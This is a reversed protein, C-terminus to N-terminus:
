KTEKKSLYGIGINTLEVTNFDTYQLMEMQSLKSIIRNLEDRGIKLMHMATEADMDRELLLKLLKYEKEYISAEQEIERPDVDIYGSLREVYNQIIRDLNLRDLVNGAKDYLTCYKSGPEHKWHSVNNWTYGILNEPRGHNFKGTRTAEAISKKRERRQFAYHQELQLQGLDVDCDSVMRTIEKGAIEKLESVFYLGAESNMDNYVVRILAEIAKGVLAPNISDIDSSISVAFGQDASDNKNIEVLKLFDYKGQLTKITSGISEDAFKSSTRRSAVNYIATLIAELLISNKLEVM